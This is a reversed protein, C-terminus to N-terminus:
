SKVQLKYTRAGNSSAAPERIILGQDVLSRIVRSSKRSDVGLEKGIEYQFYFGNNSILSLAQQELLTFEPDHVRKLASITPKNKYKDRIKGFHRKIVYFSDPPFFCVGVFEGKKADNWCFGEIEDEDLTATLYEGNEKLYVKQGRTLDASASAVVFEELGEIMAELDEKLSACIDIVQKTEDEPLNKENTLKSLFVEVEDMLSIYANMSYIFRREILEGKKALNSNELYNIYPCQNGKTTCFDEFVKKVFNEAKRKSYGTLNVLANIGYFTYIKYKERDTFDLNFIEVSRQVHVAIGCQKCMWENSRQHYYVSYTACEPCIM